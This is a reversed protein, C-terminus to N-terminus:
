VHARGIEPLGNAGDSGDLVNVFSIEDVAVEDNGVYASVTLTATDAVDAGRVTYTTGTTVNGDLVWRWGSNIVKNGKMLTPTVISQGQGNKFSTGNDTALKIIYPKADEIMRDLREQIGQSLLNELAKSRFLM